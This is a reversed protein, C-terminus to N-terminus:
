DVFLERMIFFVNRKKTNETNTEKKAAEQTTTTSFSGNGSSSYPFLTCSSTINATYEDLPCRTRVSHVPLVTHTGIGIGFVYMM